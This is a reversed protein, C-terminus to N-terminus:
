LTESLASGEKGKNIDQGKETETFGQMSTVFVYGHEFTRQLDHTRRSHFAFGSTQHSRFRCM